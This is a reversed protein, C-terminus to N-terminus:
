EYIKVMDKKINNTIISSDIDNAYENLANITMVDIDIDSSAEGRAYSGM